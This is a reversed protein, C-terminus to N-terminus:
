SRDYTEAWIHEDTQADILQATIRVRNNGRRVSGELISSVKLEEGIVKISKTTNKYQMVSTRSIVKLDSIKSLQTLIDETMGNSFFENEADANMNTFPLVAISLSNIELNSEAEKTGFDIKTGIIVLITIFAAIGIWKLNKKSSTPSPNKTDYGVPSPETATYFCLL